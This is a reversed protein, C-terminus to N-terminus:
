REKVAFISILGDYGQNFEADVTSIDKLNLGLSPFLTTLYKEDVSFSKYWNEGCKWERSNKVFMGVYFGGTKLLTLANKMNNIFAEENESIADAVSHMSLIDFPLCWIPSLPHANRIDCPALIKVKSRIENKRKDKDDDSGEELELVYDIFIDWDFPNKDELFNRIEERNSQALESFFIFNVKKVASILQYITPGGGVEVLSQCYPLAEYTKHLFKLLAQNEKGNTSFYEELYAKAQFSTFDNTINNKDTKVKDDM